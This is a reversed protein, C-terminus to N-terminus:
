ASRGAAGPPWATATYRDTYGPPFLVSVPSTPTPAHSGRHSFGDQGGAALRGAFGLAVQLELLAARQAADDPQGGLEGVDGLDLVPLQAQLAHDQDPHPGLAGGLLGAGREGLQGPQGLGGTGLDEVAQHLAARSGVRGGEDAGALDVLQAVGHLGDAGVRDDAVTLQGGTLQALQLLLELDLHDVPGRQDQVDEGLVGAGPVALGLDLQGLQGVQQGPQAAPALRQGALDAAPGRAADPDTTAPGTLRLDLQVAAPDAAPHGLQAALDVRHALHPLGLATLPAAV